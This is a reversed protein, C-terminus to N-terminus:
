WRKLAKVVEAASIGTMCRFDIPCVRKYCPSCEVHKHIVEGPGCPGTKVDSTSGFLAVVPVNLASAIHMPGSDNTLLVNLISIFGMLERLSTKGALNLVRDGLGRSIEDVLERGKADGFFVIWVNPDELLTKAVEHFREPLWCKASGYAAGPNIGVLIADSPVLARAGKKEEDTVYLQPKTESLPIKLPALLHKYTSVLHRTEIDKPLPLAVNLLLSRFHGRFGIRNKVHGRFFWWASSLSNTLLIGTDYLGKRLDELLPFLRLHHIWGSPKEFHLLEDVHPDHEFLHGIKGQCMATVKAEPFARKLDQLIPAAMVADGIWNPM